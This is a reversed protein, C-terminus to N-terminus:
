RVMPLSVRCVCIAISQYYFHGSLVGLDLLLFRLLLPLMMYLSALLVTTPSPIRWQQLVTTSQATSFKWCCEQLCEPPYQLPGSVGSSSSVLTLRYCHGSRVVKKLSWLFVALAQVINTNGRQCVMLEGARSSGGDRQMAGGVGRTGVRTADMVNYTIIGTSTDYCRISCGISRNARPATHLYRQIWVPSDAGRRGLGLGGTSWRPPRVLGAAQSAAATSPITIGM